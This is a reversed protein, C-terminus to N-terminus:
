LQPFPNSTRIAAKRKKIKNMMYVISYQCTVVIEILIKPKTNFSHDTFQKLSLVFNITCDSPHPFGTFWNLHRCDCSQPRGVYKYESNKGNHKYIHVFAINESYLLQTFMHGSTIFLVSALAPYSPTRTESKNNNKFRCKCTLLDTLKIGFM